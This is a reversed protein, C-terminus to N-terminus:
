SDIITSRSFTYSIRVAEPSLRRLQRQEQLVGVRHKSFLIQPNLKLFFHNRLSSPCIMQTVNM